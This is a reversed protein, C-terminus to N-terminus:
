RGAKFKKDKEYGHLYRMDRAVSRTHARGFAVAIKPYPSELLRQRLLDDRYEMTFSWSNLRHPNRYKENLGTAFDYETLEIVGYEQEYLDVLVDLSYDTLIDRETTLGLMECTQTVYGSKTYKAPMSKNSPDNYGTAISFGLIARFKRLLTDIRQLEDPTPDFADTMESLQAGTVESQPDIHMLHVLEFFVVYGNAKLTDLYAKTAAYGQETGLHCMPVFIIERDNVTDVYRQAQSLSKDAYASVSISNVLLSCSSAGLMIQLIILYKYM